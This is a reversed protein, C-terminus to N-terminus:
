VGDEQEQTKSHEAILSEYVFKLIHAFAFLFIPNATITKAENMYRYVVFAENQETLCLDFETERNDIAINGSIYIRIEEPLKLFLGKLGHTNGFDINYGHLLAKLYLECAFSINTLIVPMLHISKLLTQAAEFYNNAIRFTSIALQVKDAKKDFKPTKTLDFPAFHENDERSVLNM